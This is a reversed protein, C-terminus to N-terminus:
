CPDATWSASPPPRPRRLEQSLTTGVHQWDPCFTLAQDILSTKGVGPLGEVLVFQAHGQAARERTVRIQALEHARGAFTPQMARM